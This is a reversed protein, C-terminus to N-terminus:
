KGNLLSWLKPLTFNTDFNQEEFFFKKERPFVPNTTDRTQKIGLNFWGMAKAPKLTIIADQIAYEEFAQKDRKLFNSM